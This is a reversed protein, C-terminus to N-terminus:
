RPSVHGNNGWLALYAIVGLAAIGGVAWLVKNKSTQDNLAVAIAADAAQKKVAADEAALKAKDAAAQAQYDSVVGTAYEQEQAAAAASYKDAAYSDYIAQLDLPTISGGPPMVFRVRKGTFIPYTTGGNVGNLTLTGDVAMDQLALNTSDIPVHIQVRLVSSSPSETESLATGNIPTNSAPTGDAWLLNSITFPFKKGPNVVHNGNEDIFRFAVERPSNFATQGLQRANQYRVNEIRM